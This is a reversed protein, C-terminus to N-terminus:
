SIDVKLAQITRFFSRLMGLSCSTEINVHQQRLQEQTTGKLEQQWLHIKFARTLLMIYNAGFLGFGLKGEAKEGDALLNPMPTM